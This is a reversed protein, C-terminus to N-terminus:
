LTTTFPCTLATHPVDADEGAIAPINELILAALFLTPFPERPHIFGVKYLYELKNVLSIM